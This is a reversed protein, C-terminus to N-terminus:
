NVVPLTEITELTSSIERFACTLSRKNANKWQYQVLLLDELPKNDFSSLEGSSSSVPPCPFFKM